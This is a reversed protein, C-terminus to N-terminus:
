RKNIGYIKSIIPFALYVPVYFINKILIDSWHELHYENCINDHENLLINRIALYSIIYYMYQRISEIYIKKNNIYYVKEWYRNVLGQRSFSRKQKANIGSIHDVGDSHYIQLISNTYMSKYEKDLVAWLVNETVFTVGKPEPWPNDKMIKVPRIGIQEGDISRAIKVRCQWDLMNINDPYKEGVLKGDQNVCRGKVQFYESLENRPISEWENKATELCSDILEDDSDLLMLLYGNAFKIGLNRATHVGGNSKIIWMVPFNVRSMFKEIKQNPFDESGDDVIIYEFNTFTQQSVSNFARDIIQSRNYLPTVITFYPKQNDNWFSNKKIKIDM